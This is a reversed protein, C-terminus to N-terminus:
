NHRAFYTAIGLLVAPSFIAALSLIPKFKQVDSKAKHFEDFEYRTGNKGCKSEMSRCSEAYDHNIKGSVLDADGFKQCKAFRHSHSMLPFNDYEGPIFHKCTHCKPSHLNKITEPVLVRCGRYVTTTSLLLMATKKM